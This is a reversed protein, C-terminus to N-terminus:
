SRRISRRLAFRRWLSSMTAKSAKKMELAVEAMKGKTESIESAVSKLKAALTETKGDHREKLSSMEAVKAENDNFSAVCFDRQEM